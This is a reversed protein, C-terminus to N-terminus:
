STDCRFLSSTSFSYRFGFVTVITLSCCLPMHSKECCFRVVSNNKLWEDSVGMSGKSYGVLRRSSAPIDGVADNRTRTGHFCSVDCQLGLELLCVAMFDFYCIQHSANPSIRFVRPVFM